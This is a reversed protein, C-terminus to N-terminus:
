WFKSFYKFLLSVFNFLTMNSSKVGLIIINIRIFNLLRVSYKRQYFASQRVRFNYKIEM